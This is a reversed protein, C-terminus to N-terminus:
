CGTSRRMLFRRPSKSCREGEAACAAAAAQLLAFPPPADDTDCEDCLALNPQIGGHTDDFRLAPLGPVDTVVFWQGCGVCVIHRHEDAVQDWHVPCHSPNGCYPPEGPEWRNGRLGPMWFACEPDQIFRVRVRPPRALRLM